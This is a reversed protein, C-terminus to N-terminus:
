GRGESANEPAVRRGHETAPRADVEAGALRCDLRWVMERGYGQGGRGEKGAQRVLADCRVCLPLVERRWTGDGAQATLAWNGPPSPLLRM